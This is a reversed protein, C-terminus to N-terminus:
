DEKAMLPKCAEYLEAYGPFGLLREFVGMEVVRATLVSGVIVFDDWSPKAGLIFPGEVRHTKMLEGVPGMGAEAAAWVEDETELDLLEELPHGLAAERTRRFYAQSRPCLVHTERPTISARYAAGSIARTQAIIESGLPSSLTLMRRPYIAELFHAILLSDM